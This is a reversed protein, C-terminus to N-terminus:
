AATLREAVEAAIEAPARGDTAVTHTAVEAYLPRRQDLLFKLTARPNLNLLPRGAGLGVRKVADSLEVSLYVVTHETLLKRTGDHLIAGGGLALVGDFSKLTESIVQRELARFAEEGDDIFIEPIPKGARAEILTDADAFEAGLLAAVAAGITSKGAGPAGVFVARPAM